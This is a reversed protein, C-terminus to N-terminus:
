ENIEEEIDKTKQEEEEDEKTKGGATLDDILGVLRRIESEPDILGVDKREGFEGRTINSNLAYWKLFEIEDRTLPIKKEGEKPNQKQAISLIQNVIASSVIISTYQQAKKIREAFDADYQIIDYITSKPINAELCSKNISLGMKLYPELKRFYAEKEEESVRPRGLKKKEGM